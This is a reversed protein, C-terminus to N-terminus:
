DKDIIQENKDPFCGTKHRHEVPYCSADQNQDAQKEECATLWLASVALSLAWGAMLGARVGGGEARDTTPHMAM